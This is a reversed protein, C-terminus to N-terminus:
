YGELHGLRKGWFCQLIKSIKGGLKFKQIRRQKYHQQLSNIFIM